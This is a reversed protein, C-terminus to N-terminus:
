CLYEIRGNKDLSTLLMQRYPTCEGCLIQCIETKEQHHIIDFIETPDGGLNELRDCKRVVERDVNVDPHVALLHKPSIRNESTIYSKYILYASFLWFENYAVCIGENPNM